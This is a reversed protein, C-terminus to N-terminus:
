ATENYAEIYYSIDTIGGIVKTINPTFDMRLGFSAKGNIEGDGIKLKGSEGVNLLGVNASSNGLWISANLMEPAILKPNEALKDMWLSVSNAGRVCLSFGLECRGGNEVSVSCSSPSM